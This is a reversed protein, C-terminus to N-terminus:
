ILPWQLPASPAVESAPPVLSPASGGPTATGIVDGAVVVAGDAEGDVMRDDGYQAQYYEDSDFFGRPHRPPIYRPADRLEEVEKLTLERFDWPDFYAFDGALPITRRAGPGSGGDGDRRGSQEFPVEDWPVGEVFDVLGLMEDHNAEGGFPVRM